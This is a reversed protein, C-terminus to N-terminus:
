LVCKRSGCPSQAAPFGPSRYGSHGFVNHLIYMKIPVIHLLVGFFGGIKKFINNIRWM